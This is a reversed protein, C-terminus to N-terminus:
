YKLYMLFILIICNDYIIYFIIKLYNFNKHSKINLFGAYVTINNQGVRISIQIQEILFTLNYDKIAIFLFITVNSYLPQASSKEYVDYQSGDTSMCSLVTANFSIKSNLYSSLELYNKSIECLKNTLFLYTKLTISCFLEQYM